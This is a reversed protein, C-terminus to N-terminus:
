SSIAAFPSLCFSKTPTNSVALTADSTKFPFRLKVVSCIRLNPFRNLTEGANNRYAPLHGMSAGTEHMNLSAVGTRRASVQAEGYESSVAGPTMAIPRRAGDPGCLERVKRKGIRSSDEPGM